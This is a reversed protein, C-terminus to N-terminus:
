GALPPTGGPSALLTQLSELDQNIGQLADHAGRYAREFIHRYVPVHAPNPAYERVPAAAIACAEGADRYVGAGIGALLAAGHAANERLASVRIRRDLVDAKMQVWFANQSGGGICTVIPFTEGTLKAYTEVALLLQFSLGEFLARTIDDLTHGSRLGLIAGKAAPDQYPIHAGQFHPAVLLGHSGVPAGAARAILTAYAAGPEAAAYFTERLWDIMRGSGRVGGLGYTLDPVVHCGCSVGAQFFRDDIQDADLPVVLSDGTGSSNLIEGRQRVGASFAGCLHDHGGLAVVVGPPLGLAGAVERRIVGIPTGSAAVPPLIAVPLGALECMRESWTRRHVDFLMTRCALSYDLRVEGTLRYALYNPVNLWLRTRRFVEPRHRQEWLLKGLGAIHTFAMGTIRYVEREDVTRRFAELVDQVRGDFWAIAPALPTGAEDLPVAGEGFSAFALGAIADPHPCAAALEGLIARVAQWLEEPDYDASDTGRYRTPTPRSRAAVIAGERTFLLGKVNTTGLDMGILFM